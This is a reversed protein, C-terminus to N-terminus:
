HSQTSGQADSELAAVDIADFSYQQNCFECNVSIKGQQQLIEQLEAREFLKLSGRMKQHSCRCQFSLAQPEYLRLAEEHYLRHLLTEVPLQLLEENRVTAALAIIRDIDEQQAGPLAQVLLGAARQGDFAIIMRTALQESQAFYHEICESLQEGSLPVVGQYHAGTEPLLSLVLLGGQTLEKFPQEAVSEKVQAIARIGFRDNCEALLLSLNGQGKLQLSIRGQIKITSNLMAIAASAHALFARVSEPYVHATLSRQVSQDLRVVVGRMECNDFTFRHLLDWM